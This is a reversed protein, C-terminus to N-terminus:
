SYEKPVKLAEDAPLPMIKSITDVRIPSLIHCEVFTAMPFQKGLQSILHDVLNKKLDPLNSVEILVQRTLGRTMRDIPFICHIDEETKVNCEKIERFTSIVRQHIDDMEKPSGQAIGWLKVTIM